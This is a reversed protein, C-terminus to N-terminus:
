PPAMKRQLLVMSKFFLQRKSKSVNKDLKFIEFKLVTAL